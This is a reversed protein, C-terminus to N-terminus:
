TSGTAKVPEPLLYPLHEADAIAIAEVRASDEHGYRGIGTDWPEWFGGMDPNWWYTVAFFGSGGETISVFKGRYTALDATRITRSASM